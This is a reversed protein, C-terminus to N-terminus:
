FIGGIDLSLKMLKRYKNLNLKDMLQNEQM